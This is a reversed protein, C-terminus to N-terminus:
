FHGNKMLFRTKHWKPSNKTIKPWKLRFILFSTNEWPGSHRCSHNRLKYHHYISVTLQYGSKTQVGQGWFKNDRRGGFKRYFRFGDVRFDRKLDTMNLIEYKEFYWYELPLIPWFLSRVMFKVM